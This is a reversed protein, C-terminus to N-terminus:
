ISLELQHELFPSLYNQETLFGWLTCLIQCVSPIVSVAMSDIGEKKFLLVGQTKAPVRGSRATLQPWSRVLTVHLM